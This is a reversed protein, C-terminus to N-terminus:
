GGAASGAAPKRQGAAAKRQFPGRIDLKPRRNIKFAQWLGIGIIFLGIVNHIGVYVPLAYAFGILTAILVLRNMPPAAPVSTKGAPRLKSADDTEAVSNDPTEEEDAPAVAPAKSNARQASQKGMQGLVLPVYASVISTYTLFVALLQYVWGGRKESGINVAAGVMVGVLISILAIEYGTAALIAYYIGAGIAAAVTGLVAAKIFRGAPSGGSPAKAKEHCDLCIVKGALKFYTDDITSPCASCKLAPAVEARDFQLGDAAPQPPPEPM